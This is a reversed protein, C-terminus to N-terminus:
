MGDYAPGGGEPTVWNISQSPDKIDCTKCHICNQFNIKLNKGNEGDIYEYVGFHGGITYGAPCFRQEPGDFKPLNISLTAKEDVLTLHPPQDSEHNTNTLSVSSMLDFLLKRDPKPYEIKHSNQKLCAHDPKKKHKLTWPERGKFLYYITGTHLIGFSRGYNFSPRYNRASYLDRMVDSNRIADQYGSVVNDACDVDNGVQPQLHEFISEAAIIGSKMANHIGKAKAADLFGAGCGVLVGGPFVVRPLSLCRSRPPVQLGGENLARAGYSIRKGGELLTSFYPHLKLKQLENFPSLYTNAYDLAVVLGIGVLNSDQGENGYHYIFSGGYTQSDECMLGPPM